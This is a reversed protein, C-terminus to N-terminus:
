AQIDLDDFYDDDSVSTFDIDTRWRHLQLGRHASLRIVLPDDNYLDDDAIYATSLSNESWQNMYRFENELLLGRETILRATLTDDMNPAINFYYPVSIEYGNEESYGLSPYLFGSKRTDDIPFTFYPAYLVPVGAIRLYLMKQKAM